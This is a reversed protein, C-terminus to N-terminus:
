FDKISRFMKKYIAKGSRAVNGQDIATKTLFWNQIYTWKERKIPILQAIPTGAPIVGEFNDKIFFPISGWTFYKDSDVIASVTTFPLDFRNFPHTVLVSYGKPVKFGWSSQWTLHNEKHGIPRVITQGIDGIRESVLDEPHKDRDWKISLEGNETKFVHVDVPLTLAYGTIMADLFPLCTKLGSLEQGDKQWYLEAKKYWDPMTKKISTPASNEKRVNQNPIFEFKKM